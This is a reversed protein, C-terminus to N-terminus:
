SLEEFHHPVLDIARRIAHRLNGIIQNKCLQKQFM